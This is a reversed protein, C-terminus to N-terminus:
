NILRFSHCLQAVQELITYQQQIYLTDGFDRCLRDLTLQVYFSSHLFLIVKKTRLKTKSFFLSSLHLTTRTDAVIRTEENESYSSLFSLYVIAVIDLLFIGSTQM